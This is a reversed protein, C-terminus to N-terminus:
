CNMSLEALKSSDYSMLLAKMSCLILVYWLTGWFRCPIVGFHHHLSIEDLFWSSDVGRTNWGCQDESFRIKEKSPVLELIEFADLREVEGESLHMHMPHTDSSCIDLFRAWALLFRKSWNSKAFFDWPIWNFNFSFPPCGFAPRNALLIESSRVVSLPMMTMVVSITM